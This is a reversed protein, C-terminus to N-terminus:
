VCKNYLIDISFDRLLANNFRLQHRAITKPRPMLINIKNKKYVTGSRRQREVYTCLKPRPEPRLLEIIPSRLQADTAMELILM